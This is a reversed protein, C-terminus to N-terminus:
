KKPLLKNALKEMADRLNTEKLEKAWWSWIIKEGQSKLKSQLEIKNVIREDEKVKCLRDKWAELLIHPSLKEMIALWLNKRNSRTINTTEKRAIREMITSPTIDIVASLIITHYLNSM